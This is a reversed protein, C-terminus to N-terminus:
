GGATDKLLCVASAPHGEVTKAHEVDGQLQGFVSANILINRGLEELVEDEDAIRHSEAGAVLFFLRQPVLFIAEVVIGNGPATGVDLLQGNPREDTENRQIRGDCELRLEDVLKWGELLANVPEDLVATIQSLSIHGTDALTSLAISDQERDNALIPQLLDELAHKVLVLEEAVM